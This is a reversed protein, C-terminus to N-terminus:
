STFRSSNPQTDLFLIADVCVYKVLLLTMLLIYM